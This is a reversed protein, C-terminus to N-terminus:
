ARSLVVQLLSVSEIVRLRWTQSRVEEITELRVDVRKGVECSDVRDDEPKVPEQGFAKREGDIVTHGVVDGRDKGDEVAAAIRTPRSLFQCSILWCRSTTGGDGPAWGDV